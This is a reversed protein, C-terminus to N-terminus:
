EAYKLIGGGGEGGGKGGINQWTTQDYALIQLLSTALGFFCVFFYIDVLYSDMQYWSYAAQTFVDVQLCVVHVCMLCNLLIEICCARDM